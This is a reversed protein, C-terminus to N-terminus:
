SVIIPQHKDPLGDIYKVKDGRYKRAMAARELIEGGAEVIKRRKPDNLLKILHIVYGYNQSIDINKVVAIGGETNINVAWMYGPYHNQLMDTCEKALAFEQMLESAKGSEVFFETHDTM